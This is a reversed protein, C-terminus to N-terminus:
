PRSRPRPTARGVPEREADYSDLLADKAQGKIVWALKWGLNHGDAIGTNM